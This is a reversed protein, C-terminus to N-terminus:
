VGIPKPDPDTHLVNPIIWRHTTKGTAMLLETRERMVLVSQGDAKSVSFLYSRATKGPKEIFAAGLTSSPETRGVMELRGSLSTDNELTGNAARVLHMALIVPVRSDTGEQIKLFFLTTRGANDRTLALPSKKSIQNHKVLNVPYWHFRQEPDVPITASACEVAGGHMRYVVDVRGEASCDDAYYMASIDGTPNVGGSVMIPHKTHWTYKGESFTATLMQIQANENARFLFLKKDSTTVALKSYRHAKMKKLVTPEEWQGLYNGIRMCVDGSGDESISFMLRQKDNNPDFCVCFNDGVSHDEDQPIAIGRPPGWTGDFEITAM